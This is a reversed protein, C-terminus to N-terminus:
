AASTHASMASIHLSRSASFGYVDALSNLCEWLRRSFISIPVPAGM